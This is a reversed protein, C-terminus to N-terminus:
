DEMKETATSVKRRNWIINEFMVKENIKKQKETLLKDSDYSPNRFMQWLVFENMDSM